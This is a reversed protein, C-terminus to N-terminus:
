WAESETEAKHKHNFTQDRLKKRWSGCAEGMLM